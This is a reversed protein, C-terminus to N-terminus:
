RSVLDMMHTWLVCLTGIRGVTSKDTGLGRRSVVHARWESIFDHNLGALLNPKWPIENPETEAPYCLFVTSVMLFWSEIWGAPKTVAFNGFSHRFGTQSTPQSSPLWCPWRGGGLLWVPNLCRQSGLLLGFRHSSQIM